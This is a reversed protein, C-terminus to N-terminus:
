NLEVICTSLPSTHIFVETRIANLMRIANMANNSNFYRAILEHVTLRAGRSPHGFHVEQISHMDGVLDLIPKVKSVVNAPGVSSRSGCYLTVLVSDDFNLPVPLNVRTERNFEEPPVPILEWGFFKSGVKTVFCKAERIDSFGIYFRGKINLDNMHPGIM